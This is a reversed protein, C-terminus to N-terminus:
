NYLFMHKPLNLLSHSNIDQQNTYHKIYEGDYGYVGIHTGSNDLIEFAGNETDLSILLKKNGQGAEFIDYNYHTGLQINKTYGNLELILCGLEKYRAVNNAHNGKEIKWASLKSKIFKYSSAPFANESRLKTDSIFVKPFWISFDFSAVYSLYEKSFKEFEAKVKLLPKIKEFLYIYQIIKKASNFCPINALEDTTKADHSSKLIPLHPRESFYTQPINLLATQHGLLIKNAANAISSNSINDSISLCYDQHRFHYYYFQRTNDQCDELLLLSSTIYNREMADFYLDWLVRWENIEIIRSYVKIRADYLVILNEHMFSLINNLDLRDILCKENLFIDM